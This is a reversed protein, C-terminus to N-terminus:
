CSSWNISSALITATQLIIHLAHVSEGRSHTQPIQKKSNREIGYGASPWCCSAVVPVGCAFAEAITLWPSLELYRHMVPVVECEGGCAWFAAHLAAMHRLFRLHQELSIPEDTVPVLWPSVDRMLM